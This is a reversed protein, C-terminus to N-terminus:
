RDRGRVSSVGSRGSRIYSFRDDGLDCKALGESDARNFAAVYADYDSRQM